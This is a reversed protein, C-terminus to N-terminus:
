FNVFIIEESSQGLCVNMGLGVDYNPRCMKISINALCLAIYETVWECNFQLRSSSVYALAQQVPM